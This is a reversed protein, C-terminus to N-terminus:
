KTTNTKKEDDEEKFINHASSQCTRNLLGLFERESENLNIKKEILNETQIIFFETQTKHIGLDKRNRIWEFIEKSKSKEIINANECIYLFVKQHAILIFCDSNNM